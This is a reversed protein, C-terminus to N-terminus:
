ALQVADLPVIGGCCNISGHSDVKASEDPFQAYRPSM